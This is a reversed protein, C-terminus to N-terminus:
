SAAPGRYDKGIVVVVDANSPVTGKRVAGAPLGLTKAVDVAVAKRAPDAYVVESGSRTSGATGGPVYTYSGGNVIAAQALSAARKDGSANKVSVRAPASVGTNKVTGGLIDKVVGDTAKESLTGGPQVPLLTTAYDGTKAQGALQALTAGLENDPLSPDPIANMAEVTRTALKADSPFKKLVAEMVQGFRTLQRASAEGPAHYTAYAVAAQGGLEQGKGPKVLIKDQDKRDGKVTADSDVVIGGLAEVLLELYPTDLRWTGKIDAGLLTNLADRTPASGAEVSKDLTTSGGDDTSVALTNPLLVTTGKGTTANGVLLATSSTGGDLPRLHLVIVDRKQGATTTTGSSQAADLGPIRGSRWLYGAGGVLALVVVLVLAVMRKRGRRKREDRRETRSESFKLWDIVDESEESDEDVFAFQETHYDVAPPQEPAALPDADYSPADYAPAVDEYYPVQPPQQGYRQEQYPQQEYGGPAQYRQQYEPQPQRPPQQRRPPQQQSPQQQPIWGQQSQQQGAYTQSPDGYSPDHGYPAQQAQQQPYPPRDPASPYPQPPQEVPRGYPDHGYQRQPHYPERAYPDQGGEPEGDAQQWRADNM